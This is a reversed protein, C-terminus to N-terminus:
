RRVTRTQLVSWTRRWTSPSLVSGALPGTGPESADRASTGLRGADRASAELAHVDLESADDPVLIRSLDLEERISTGPEDQAEPEPVAGKTLVHAGRESVSLLLREGGVDILALGVKPGLAQRGVVAIPAPERRKRAEASRDRRFPGRGRAPAGGQTSALRRGALWVLGLVLALCLAARLATVLLDM